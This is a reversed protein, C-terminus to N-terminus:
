IGLGKKYDSDYYALKGLRVQEELSPNVPKVPSSPRDSIIGDKQLQEITNESQGLLEQLIYANDEGLKSAPRPIEISTKSFKWPQGMMVRNGMGRGEPFEVKELFGRAWYHPSVNSDRADAVIGAPVGVRQLREMVETKNLTRTWESIIVDITDHLAMRRENNAYSADIALDPRGIENCLATWEEDNGVSMVCWNDEGFCPYCGQPARWPHRNGIREGIRGNVAYDLIYESVGYAGLQYMGVDIWQGKGTKNRHRLACIIAFLASWCALFDVYSAGAKSPIGKNYGTVWCLGHTAEQTTAQAPWLSYPGGGHGYGTNSAFIIDPKLKVINPYDMGWSRMVRPTYNELVVDSVSVLQRLVDRGEDKSLDLTISRKSRNLQNFTSVRNWPDEGPDMDPFAAGGVGGGRIMDTRGPGEIKIVEAGFDGMVAGAYPMAYVSTLDIVRIGEFPLKRM